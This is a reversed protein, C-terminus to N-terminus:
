KRGGEETSAQAPRNPPWPRWLLLGTGGAVVAGAADAALANFNKVTLLPDRQWTKGGDQTSLLLGNSGAILGRREDAFSVRSFRGYTGSQCRAWSAGGDDTRLIVGPSGVAVATRDDPMAISSLSAALSQGTEAWTRAYDSTKYVAGGQCLVM